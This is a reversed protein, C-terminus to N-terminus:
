DIYAYVCICILWVIWLGRGVCRKRVLALLDQVQKFDRRLLELRRYAEGDNKRHKRLKYRDTKKPPKTLKTIPILIYLRLSLCLLLCIM